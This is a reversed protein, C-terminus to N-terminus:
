LYRNRYKVETNFSASPLVALTNEGKKLKFFSGGFNKLDNRPEGNVLIDDNKHDFSVKDGVDLIYPTQDVTAQSLEYASVSFFKSSYPEPGNKGIHIQVYKLRGSYDGANDTYTKRLNLVHRTDTAIRTIYFEIKNGVRKIRLMGFFYDWNYQYNASSILYNQGVGVFPGVRGEGNKKNVATMNDVVAMKGIVNMFENYLYLEIRTAQNPNPTRMQLHAKVEFDQVPTVEKILAPGHWSPGTGYDPVTIGAGDTGFSGTITGGDVKTGATTWTNITSGDEEFLLSRTDVTQENVTAPKGILNYEDGNSIMAFTTKKKATLEFVPDAEATGANTLTIADSTFNRTLEPGYSYPDLLLFQITGQRLDAFRELDSISNQILAYYIRGPEDDFELSAPKDTILWEALEDKIQLAHEDDRVKFAIPQGFAIPEIQSSQLYAGAMGPITLMNRKVPVFLPKDRGLTM